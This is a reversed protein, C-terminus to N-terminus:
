PGAEYISSRVAKLESAFKRRDRVPDPHHRVIGPFFFSIFGDHPGSCTRMRTLPAVEVGVRDCRIGGIRGGRRRSKGFRFAVKETTAQREEMESIIAVGSVGSLRRQEGANPM